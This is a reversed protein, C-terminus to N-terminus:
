LREPYNSFIGDVGLDKMRQIDDDDNVTYVYVKLGRKHADEIFEQNIFELSM